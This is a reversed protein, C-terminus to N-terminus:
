QSTKDQGGSGGEPMTGEPAQSDLANDPRTGGRSGPGGMGGMGGQVATGDESISTATNELTVSCLESGNSSITYISGQVMDPTSALVCQYSKTPTISAITTGNEDILEFTTGAAQESDFYVLLSPQTSSDSASQAMGSSGAALFTGGTIEFSGAYDLPGNGDNTPGYISITGGDVYLNGNSDIGDGGADITISGGTIRIFNYDTAADMGGGMGGGPPTMNEGDSSTMNEGDPPTMNEGDPPTMNEGDPPTMNGGDPPAMNEGDPPTMAQQDSPVAAARDSSKETTESKATETTAETATETTTDDALGTGAANIGDDSSTLNIDGGNITVTMGKLAEASGEINITGADIILNKEAHVADDGANISFLGGAIHLDGKDADSDNSSKLADEGANLVFTGDAIYLGDKGSIADDVATVNLVGNVITLDDKSRIGKLYNGNVTLTGSGNIDLDDHSFVAADPEDEEASDFIYGSGDTVTNETGAALTLVIEDANAGYIAASSQCTVNIGNLVLQVIDQDGSDVRIQGDSLTGTLVYTGGSSITVIGNEAAAGDGSIDISGDTLTIHTAAADDWTDTLAAESLNLESAATLNKDTQISETELSDQAADTTPATGDSQQGSCGFLLSSTLTLACIVAIWQYKNQLNM